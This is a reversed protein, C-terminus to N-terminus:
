FRFIAGYRQTKELGLSVSNKFAYTFEWQDQFYSFGATFVDDDLGARLILENQLKKEAGVHIVTESGIGELELAFMFDSSTNRAFGVAIRPKFEDEESPRLSNITERKGFLDRVTLGVRTMEDVQHLVGVDVSYGEDSLSEALVGNVFSNVRDQDLGGPATFRGKMWKINIGAQTSPDVEYAYAILYMDNSFDGGGMLFDDSVGYHAWAVGLRNQAYAIYNYDIGLGFLDTHTIQVQQQKIKALGAPNYFIANVDDAVAVFAGGMAEPRVGPEPFRNESKEGRAAAGTFLVMMSCLIVALHLKPKTM